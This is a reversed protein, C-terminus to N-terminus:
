REAGAADTDTEANGAPAEFCESPPVGVLEGILIVRPDGLEVDRSHRMLDSLCVPHLGVKRAIQYQRSGPQRTANQVAARLRDSIM